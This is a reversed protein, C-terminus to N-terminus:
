PASKAEEKGKPAIQTMLYGYFHAPGSPPVWKFLGELADQLDLIGALATATGANFPNEGYVSASDM